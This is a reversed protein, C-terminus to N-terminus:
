AFAGIIAGVVTLGILNFVGNIWFWTFPEPKTDYIATIAAATLAYGVGVTAGLAAGAGVGSTGIAVALMATVAAAVLYAALTLVFVMPNPKGDEPVEIAGARQWARAIPPAMYWGAGLAFWALAAVVVALWNVGGLTEFMAM